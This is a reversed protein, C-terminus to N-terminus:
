VSYITPLTLHTYSVTILDQMQALIFEQQGNKHTSKPKRLINQTLQAIKLFRSLAVLVVVAVVLLNIYRVPDRLVRIPASLATTSM